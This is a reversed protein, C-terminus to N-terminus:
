RAEPSSEPPTEDRAGGVGGPPAEDISDETRRAQDLHSRLTPLTRAAWQQIDLDKGKRAAERELQRIVRQHEDIMLDLYEEDFDRGLEDRLGELKDQAEDDLSEPLKVHKREALAALEENAREHHDAMMRALQRVPETRARSEALKAAEEELRGDNTATLVLERVDETPPGAEEEVVEGPVPEKERNCGPTVASALALASAVILEISRM